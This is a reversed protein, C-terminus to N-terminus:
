SCIGTSDCTGTTGSTDCYAGVGANVCDSDATCSTIPTAPTECLAIKGTDKSATCSNPNPVPIGGESYCTSANFSTAVAGSSANAGYCGKFKEGGIEAEMDVCFNPAMNNTSCTYTAPCSWNIAGLTNCASFANVSTCSQFARM